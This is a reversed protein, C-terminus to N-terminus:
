EGYVYVYYQQKTVRDETYGIYRCTGMAMKTVLRDAAIAHPEIAQYDYSIVIRKGSLLDTAAIRSGKTETSGLYKTRIIRMM